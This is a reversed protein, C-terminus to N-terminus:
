PLPMVGIVGEHLFLLAGYVIVGLAIRVFGIGKVDLRTRGSLVAWFPISSTSASLRRWEDEGLDRRKKKDLSWLGAVSLITFLGFLLMSATDGNPALHAVSWLLLGWVLPHRTVSVIGPHEPDFRDAKVGVSLPNPESLTSILFLCAFPMSLVPAWRTWPWQPWLVDTDANAYAVAVWVLIAISLLSYSAIYAKMGVMRVLGRRIPGAAPIMHFAIFVGLAVLLDTM